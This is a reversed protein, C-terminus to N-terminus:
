MIQQDTKGDAKTAGRLIGSIDEVANASVLFIRLLSHSTTEAGVM